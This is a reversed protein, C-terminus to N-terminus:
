LRILIVMMNERRFRFVTAQLIKRLITQNELYEVIANLISFVTYIVYMYACEHAHVRVHVCVCVCACLSIVCLLM